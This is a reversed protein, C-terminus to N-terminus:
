ERKGRKEEIEKQLYSLSFPLIEKINMKKKKAVEVLIISDLYMEERRIRLMTELVKKSFCTPFGEAISNNSYDELMNVIDYQRADLLMTAVLDLMSHECEGIFKNIPKYRSKVEKLAKLVEKIDGNRVVQLNLEGGLGFETPEKKAEEVKVEEKKTEEM